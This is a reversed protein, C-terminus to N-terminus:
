LYLVSACGTKVLLLVPRERGGMSMLLATFSPILSPDDHLFLIEFDENSSATNGTEGQRIHQLADTYVEQDKLLMRLNGGLNPCADTQERVAQADQVLKTEILGNLARSTTPDLFHYYVGRISLLYHGAFM